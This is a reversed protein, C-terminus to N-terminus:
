ENIIEMEKEDIFQNTYLKYYHGKNAMLEDHTGDETIIGKEVVLIRDASRITSLRHAIIFSTRGELVKGIAEQVILETETDVSSTAEDLIFLKPNAIIARAFSILQKEGTSLKAGGEGVETEYGKDFKMIFDHANVLKAARIVDLESADLKGYVINDKISGSFLHPTQLVYGINSHLWLQSRDRYDKGDILIKGEVPEYFRCALNVITSKGSGTEGVLAITQGPEVTLNFNDLIVEEEKYFFKVDKFEIKGDIREWNETKGVVSDGYEKVVEDSDIIDPETDIMSLLREASAQAIQLEAFIRAMERVPEFFQISFNMFLVLTGYTIVGGIVKSYDAVVAAGGVLNSLGSVNVLKGGFGLALAMGISGICLVVPMYISSLVASGVSKTRMEGTLERFESLNENERVLTKTTKAGTIGENFSGTIKSNIKRVNRSLTLMKKQFFVSVIALLPVVSLTILALKWNIYIMVVSIMIMMSIGWMFDVLGWAIIGGIKSCDSTMRAMLWGVATKDFYSFSLEQLRQFGKRRLTYTVGAEIKGAEKIFLYVLLSLLLFAATYIAVFYPFGDLTGAVVYNDIAYATMTPLGVDIVALMIMYFILVVFNKKYPKLYQFLNKWIAFDYNKSFEKEEHVNM